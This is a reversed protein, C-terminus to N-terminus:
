DRGAESAWVDYFYSLSNDFVYGDYYAMSWVRKKGDETYTIFIENGKIETTASGVVGYTTKVEKYWNNLKSNTYAIVRNKM